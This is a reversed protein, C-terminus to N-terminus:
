HSVCSSLVAVFPFGTYLMFSTLVIADFSDGSCFFGHDDECLGGLNNGDPISKDFRVGIKSNGNEEFPLLVRGRCGTTPGRSLMSFLFFIFKLFINLLPALLGTCCGVFDKLSCFRLLMHNFVRVSVFFV